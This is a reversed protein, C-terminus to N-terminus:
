SPNEKKNRHHIKKRKLEISNPAAIITFFHNESAIKHPTSPMDVGLPMNVGALLNRPCILVKEKKKKRKQIKQEKKRRMDDRDYAEPKSIASLCLQNCVLFRSTTCQTQIQVSRLFPKPRRPKATPKRPAKKEGYIHM